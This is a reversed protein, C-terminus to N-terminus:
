FKTMFLIGQQLRKLLKQALKLRKQAMKNAKKNRVLAIDANEKVKKRFFFFLGAAVVLPIIFVAM